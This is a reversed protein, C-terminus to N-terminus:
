TEHARLHTYSVAKSMDAINKREVLTGANNVLVDIAGFNTLTQEVLQNVNAEETLDGGVTIAEGGLDTIEQVVEEAGTKNSNYHVTVRAGARAFEIAASKGIGSSSGTVIVVKQDFRINM